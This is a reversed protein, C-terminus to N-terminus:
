TRLCRHWWLAGYMSMLVYILYCKQSNIMSVEISEILDVKQNVKYCASGQTDMWIRIPFQGAAAAVRGILWLTYWRRNIATPLWPRAQEVREIWPKLCLINPIQWIPLFTDMLTLWVKSTYQRMLLTAHTHVKNQYLVLASCELLLIKLMSM